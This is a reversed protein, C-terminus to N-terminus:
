PQVVVEGNSITAMAALQLMDVNTSISRVSGDAFCFNIVGPHFSGWARKCPCLTPGGIAQCALYDPMLTRTQPPLVVASQNYSTYTYGWFTTRRPFSPTTYEGVVITNSTGDTISAISEYGYPPATYGSPFPGPFRPDSVSHLAGRTNTGFPPPLSRGCEADFWLNGDTVGEVARYSGTAYTLGLAGGPGSQPIFLQNALPDSPCSYTKIFRQLPLAPNQTPDDNQENTLSFNYLKYLNDQEIYPLLFITWTPGSQTSCCTGNTVGGPPFKMSVDHYNHLALGLQKLNNM